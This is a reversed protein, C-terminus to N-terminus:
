AAGIRALEAAHEPRMQRNEDRITQILTAIEAQTGAGDGMLHRARVARIRLEDHNPGVLRGQEIAWLAEDFYGGALCRDTLECAVDVLFGVMDDHFTRAWPWRAVATGLPQGSILTLAQRLARDSAANVTGPILARVRHWDSTVREDLSIRGQYAEPLFRRGDEDSGLWARLRSLNSRRTGEAVCLARSMTTATSGPHLLLWAAYEVCQQQARRPEQGTAGELAPEGLLVLSPAPPPSLPSPPETEPDLIHETLSRRPAAPSWWGAPETADDLTGAFLEVLARRAPTTLLQPRFHDGDLAATDGDFRIQTNGQWEPIVACVGTRGLGLAAEITRAQSATVPEAFLVVVPHWEPALDPCARVDDLLRAGLELRRTACVTTLYECAEDASLERLRPDDIAEAWPQDAGVLVVEVDSSWPACLLSTVMAGVVAQPEAAGVLGTAGAPELALTMESEDSRWGLVVSTPEVDTPAEASGDAKRALATWFKTADPSLPVLRRGLARGVLQLRRRAAVGVVITSALMGGVAGVLGHSEEDLEPM